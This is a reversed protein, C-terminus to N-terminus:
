SVMASLIVLSTLFLVAIAGKILYRRMQYPAPSGACYVQPEIAYNNLIGNDLQTTTFM